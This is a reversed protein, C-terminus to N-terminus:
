QGRHINCFRRPAQGRLFRRTVVEPCYMTARLGSDACIDVEVYDSEAPQKKKRRSSDDSRRPLDNSARRLDGGDGSGDNSGDGSPAAPPTVETSPPLKPADHRPAPVANPDPAPTGDAPAGETPSRDPPTTGDGGLAKDGNANADPNDSDTTKKPLKVADTAGPPPTDVPKAYGLKHAALMIDHWIQTSVGGGYVSPSMPHLKRNATWSIGVLGDSYGCFWADMHGSTTGTKGRADPVGQARTGTGYDVVAKLYRDIQSCVNPDLVNRFRVPEYEKVVQGDPGVIRVIPNPRVRDGHLMFVSYAEAMEIPHVASAGLALPEYPDLHSQIGFADHAYNIVTQVGVKEIVHVAPRNVSLAIAREVTYGPENESQSANHVVWVNGARDTKEIPANSIYDDPGIAGTALAASYVIPKFSSGPQRGLGWIVNNFKYRNYDIDGVEALIRGDKDMLVFAGVTIGNGRNALVYRRVTREAISEIDSRLSTEIRYGGSKLDIDPFDQKIRDLVDAVFYPARVIVTGSENHTKSLESKLNEEKAKDYQEQTIKGDDLMIGLVVDRNEKAKELNDFPNQDSPRRVCRALTAAEGLTLQDIRKNFYTEAASALGYAGKGFYVEKLYMELIQDKTKVKELENALAIDKLKRTATRESGNILRKALQMSLTSAGQSAHGERAMTFAARALGIADVGSHSYFRRDEAEIFADRVMQPVDALKFPKRNVQSVQYIIKGNADTIVSSRTDIQAMKEELEGIESQADNSIKIFVAFFVVFGALVFITFTALTLKVRRM